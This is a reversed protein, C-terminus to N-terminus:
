RPEWARCRQAKYPFSRQFGWACVPASRVRDRPCVGGRGRRRTQPAGRPASIVAIVVVVLLNKTCRTICLIVFIVSLGYTYNCSFFFLFFSVFIRTQEQSQLVKKNKKKKGEKKIKKLCLLTHQRPINGQKPHATLLLSFAKAIEQRSM